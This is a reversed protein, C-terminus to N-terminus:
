SQCITLTRRFCLWSQFFRNRGCSKCSSQQKHEPSNKKVRSLIPQEGKWYKFLYDINVKNLDHYSIADRLVEAVNSCDIETKDTYIFSRGTLIRQTESM